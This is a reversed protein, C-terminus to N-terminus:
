NTFCEGDIRRLLWSKDEAMDFFEELFEKMKVKSGESLWMKEKTIVDLLVAKKNKLENIVLNLTDAGICRGLYYRDTVKTIPLTSNPRSYPTNIIGSWDFDYPVPVPPEFPNLSLIVINHPETTSWDTNGVMFQFLSLRTMSFPEFERQRVNTANLIKGKLRLAMAEESEIFFSHLTVSDQPRNIDKLKLKVPRVKLSYPSLENYLKYVMLEEQIYQEYKGKGPRCPLVLKLKDQHEFVTGKVTKKSFNFMLPPQTCNKSDCRFNGRKKVRVKLIRKEGDRETYQLIAKHYHPDSCAEDKISDLPLLLEIEIPFEKDFLSEQALIPNVMPWLLFLIFTLRLNFQLKFGQNILHNRKMFTSRRKIM